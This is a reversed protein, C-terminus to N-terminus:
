RLHSGRDVSLLSSFLPTKRELSLKPIFVRVRDIFLFCKKSTGLMKFDKSLQRHLETGTYASDAFVISDGSDFLDAFVQSDHASANTVISKVILKSDQDVKVHNKYEYHTDGKKQGVLM